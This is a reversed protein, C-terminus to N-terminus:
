VVEYGGTGQGSGPPPHIGARTSARRLASLDASAKGTKDELPASDREESSFPVTTKYFVARGVAESHSIGM